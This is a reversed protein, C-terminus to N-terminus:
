RWPWVNTSMGGIYPASPGEMTNVWVQRMWNMICMYDGLQQDEEEGGPGQVGRSPVLLPSSPLFLPEQMPGNDWQPNKFWPDQQEERHHQNGSSSGSETMPSGPELGLSEQSGQAHEVARTM